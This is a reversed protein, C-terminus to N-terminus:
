CLLSLYIAFLAIQPWLRSWALDKGVYEKREALSSFVVYIFYNKLFLDFTNAKIILMISIFLWFYNTDRKREQKQHQALSVPKKINATKEWADWFHWETILVKSAKNSPSKDFM